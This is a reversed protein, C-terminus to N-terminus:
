PQIPAKRPDRARFRWTEAIRKPSETRGLTWILLDATVVSATSVPLNVVPSGVLFDMLMEVPSDFASRPGQHTKRLLDGITLWWVSGRGEDEFPYEAIRIRYFEKRLQDSIASELVRAAKRMDSLRQKSLGGAAHAAQVARRSSEDRRSQNQAAAVCGFFSELWSRRGRANTPVRGRLTRWERKNWPPHSASVPLEGALFDSLNSRNRTSEPDRPCSPDNEIARRARSKPSQKQRETKEGTVKRSVRRRFQSLSSEYSPDDPEAESLGAEFEERSVTFSGRRKKPM